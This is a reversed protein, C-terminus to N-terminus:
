HVHCIPLIPFLMAQQMVELQSKLLPPQIILILQVLARQLLQWDM